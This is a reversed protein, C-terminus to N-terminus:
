SFKADASSGSIIAIKEEAPLEVSCSCEVVVHPKAHVESDLSSAFEGAARLRDLERASIGPCCYVISLLVLWVM